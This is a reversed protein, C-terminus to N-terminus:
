VIPIAGGMQAIDIEKAQMIKSKPYTKRAIVDSDLQITM